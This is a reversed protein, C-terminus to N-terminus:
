APRTKACGLSRLDAAARQIARVIGIYGTCRCLNGGMEDRIAAEDADPRRKLLDLASMLMGPTCFGCQLGHDAAFAAKLVEAEPSDLGEITVIESTECTAALTICSRIPEGDVMVTCAGCVGHECGVHTGTLGLHDRLADSLMTRPPVTVTRVGGNVTLTLKVDTM